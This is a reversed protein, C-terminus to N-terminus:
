EEEERKEKAARYRAAKLEKERAKGCEPCYRPVMGMRGVADLKAGCARCRAAERRAVSSAHRKPDSPLGLAALRAKERDYWEAQQARERAKRCEPCRSPARGGRSTNVFERGCDACTLAVDHPAVTRQKRAAKRKRSMEGERARTCEPCRKPPRGCRVFHEFERGCGECTLTYTGAAMRAVPKAKRPKLPRKPFGCDDVDRRVEGVTETVGGRTVTMPMLATGRAQAAAFQDALRGM